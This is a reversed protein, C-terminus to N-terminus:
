ELHKFLLQMILDAALVAERHEFHLRVGLRCSPMRIVLFSTSGQMKTMPSAASAASKIVRNIKLCRSYFQAALLPGQWVSEHKVSNSTAHNIYQRGITSACPCQALLNWCGLCAQDTGPFHSAERPAIDMCIRPCTALRGAVVCVNGFCFCM